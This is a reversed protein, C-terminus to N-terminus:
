RISHRTEKKSRPRRNAAQEKWTAWRCNGPEYNGNPNPFRDLTKGKPRPGMDALFNKLSHLWRPCVKIGRGGYDKFAPHKPNSCRVKMAQWSQYEPTRPRHLISHGHIRLRRSSLERRLCGCSRTKRALGPAPTLKFVGCECLVLWIVNHGHRGAPWQVTLRGLRKGSYDALPRGTM